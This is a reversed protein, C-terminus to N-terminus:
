ATGPRRAADEGTPDDDLLEAEPMDEAATTSTTEPAKVILPLLETQTPSPTPASDAPERWSLTDLSGCNGCVANWQGHVHQCKDCVWQAGRSATLARTLWGRVVADESGEGREIAAMITLVRAIPRKEALDGLARRAAPFDEAAILLEAQLLRTEEHEPHIKLLKAFRDLRQRPTEDPDIEAFAAALDPHPAVAWAKKIVKVAYREKDEAIHARAAMAAAPVLDPSLRNAEVAAEHALHQKGEQLLRAADQLALVADRRRYLDRPLSGARKKALLTARAGQWDSKGTQLKLLIDQTDKHRPQIAFAKEALKLATETDGAELRQRMLGRVAVFRTRDTGLLRKYYEEARGHEGQMEAAQANLLNTLEPRALLKEAKAARAAAREGEGAALALMGDTLADFGRRERNRDFYRSIATEDGNIFRLVAVLLGAVRLVLWLLLLALVALIVAQVPGLLFETDAVAIRIGGDSELLQGLGLTLGAVVAVFLLIKLLPWLM